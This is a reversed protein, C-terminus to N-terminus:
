LVAENLGLAPVDESVVKPAPIESLDKCRVNLSEPKALCGKKCVKALLEGAVRANSGYIYQYCRRVAM